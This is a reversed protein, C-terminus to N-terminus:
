YTRFSIFGTYETEHRGSGTPDVRRDLNYALDLVLAGVPTKYRLGVGAAHRYSDPFKFGAVQVSGGDYFLTGEVDNWLPYRLESKLLYFTSHTTLKLSEGEELGFEFQNNPFRNKPELGRITSSGGLTFGKTVYPVYSNVNLNKLYGGQISNSWVLQSNYFNSYHIFSATSRIYTIGSSSGLIPTGYEVHLHSLTGATAYIPHNRYDLEISPGTFAIRNIVTPNKKGNSVSSEKNESIDILNWSGKIKSSFYQSLSFNISLKELITDAQDEPLSQSHLLYVHGRTRSNLIYPETYSLRVKSQTFGSRTDNSQHTNIIRNGEVKLTTSRGSGGINFYSATMFGRGTIERENTLGVGVTFLGPLRENLKVIITRESISTNKELMSISINRFLSTRRLRNISEKILHPTLTDGVKFELENLVVPIKTKKNGEIVIRKVVVRPGEYLDFIIVAQSGDENFQILNDHRNLLSMELYGNKKYFESIKQLSAELAEKMLPTGEKVSLLMKLREATYNANNKFDIENVHTIKGEYFSIFIDVSNKKKNYQVRSSSIKAQLYGENQLELILNGIGIDIGKRNYYRNQILPSSHKLILKRYYAEKRSFTGQFNLTRIRIKHGEDVRILITKTFASNNTKLLSNVKVRSYGRKLYYEKVRVTLDSISNKDARYFNKFKINQRIQSASERKYGRISLSYSFPDQIKYTIFARTKNSSYVVKPGLLSSSIYNEKMFLAIIRQRVQSLEKKSFSSGLFPRTNKELKQKLVKNETNIHIGSIECPSGESISYTISIKDFFRKGYSIRIQANLYGNDRYLKRLVRISQETNKQDFSTDEKIDLADRLDSNSFYQNGHISIKDIVRIPFATITNLPSGNTNEKYVFVNEFKNTKMLYRIVRDLYSPSLKKNKLRPFKSFLEKKIESPIGTMKLKGYSQSNMLMFVTIFILYRYFGM